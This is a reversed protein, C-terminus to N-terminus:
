APSNAPDPPDPPTLRTVRQVFDDILNDPWGLIDKMVEPWLQWSQGCEQCSLKGTEDSTILGPCDAAHHFILVVDELHTSM